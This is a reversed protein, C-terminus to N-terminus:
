IYSPTLSNNHYTAFDHRIQHAKRISLFAKKSACANKLARTEDIPNYLSLVRNEWSTGAILPVSDPKQPYAFRPLPLDLIRHLQRSVLEVARYKAELSHGAIHPTAIIAKNVIQPNIQPENEYVDTCYILPQTAELLATENVVGGRSANILVTNPNLQAIFEQNILNGSPFPEAHHLEPHICLIDCHFLESLKCSTFTKDHLEKLPDYTIVEFNLTNLRQTVETGVKGYGIVGVKKNTIKLYALCSIVYDAVSVANCGKADIVTINQSNLFDHDLHDTGSSATAVYHLSHNKLLKQDVKLTSRCLLVQKEKLLACIEEEGHYLHLNFPAPFAELVGPLTADALINM